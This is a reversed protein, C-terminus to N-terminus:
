TVRSKEVHAKVADLDQACMEGMKKMMPKMLFGMVKAMVTLPQVHFTMVLRTGGRAEHFDFGTRYRCGHHDCGITYHRPPEYRIFELEETVERGFLRRTERFRTGKGVPGSTLVETRTIAPVVLAWHHVDAASAFVTAPPAAIFREVTIDAM